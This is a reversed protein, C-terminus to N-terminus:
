YVEAGFANLVDTVPKYFSSGGSACGGQGGIGVGLAMDGSFYPAGPNDGPEACISTMALGTITGEPTNVAINLAKVTGCRRGTTSGSTCVTQGVTARGSRTIDQSGPFLHVSGPREVHPDTYRALGVLGNVAVVTGLEITLGPDGYLNLGQKACGGATLFSYAGGRRVNFALTCRVGGPAFIADGGEPGSPAPATGSAASAAPALTVIVATVGTTLAAIRFRM